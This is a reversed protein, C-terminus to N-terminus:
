EAVDSLYEDSGTVKDAVPSEIGAAVDATEVYPTPPNAGGSVSAATPTPILPVPMRAARKTATTPPNAKPNYAFLAPKSKANNSTSHPWKHSFTTTSLKSRRLTEIICYGIVIHM